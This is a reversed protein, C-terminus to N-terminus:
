DLIRGFIQACEKGITELSNKEIVNKVILGVVGPIDRDSYAASNDGM